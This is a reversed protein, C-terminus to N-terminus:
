AAVAGAPVSGANVLASVAAQLAEMNQHANATAQSYHGIGQEVSGMLPQLKTLLEKVEQLHMQQASSRGLAGAVDQCQQWLEAQGSELQQKLADVQQKQQTVTNQHEQLTARQSDLSNALAQKEAEIWQRHSNLQHLLPGIDVKPVSPGGGDDGRLRNLLGEQEALERQKKELARQQPALSVELTSCASKAYDIDMEIDFRDSASATELQKQLEELKQHNQQLESAQQEVLQAHQEYDRRLNAVTAELEEPSLQPVSGAMDVGEAVIVDGRTALLQHSSSLADDQQRLQESLLALREEGARITAELSGTSALSDAITHQLQLFEQHRQTWDNLASNLQSQRSEHQQHEPQLTASSSEVIQLHQNVEHKLQQLAQNTSSGDVQLSQYVNQSLSQLREAEASDLSSAAASELEQLHQQSQQLEALQENLQRRQEGMAQQQESLNKELTEIETRQAQLSELDAQYQQYQEDIQQLQEERTELEVERRNLEQSQFTLSQKWQEIEEEQGQNKELIRSFAQLTGVIERSAERIKIVQRNANIETLVLMGANFKASDEIPLAEDSVAVWSRDSVQKALLQITTKRFSGKDVAALYLM